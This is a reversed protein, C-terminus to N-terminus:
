NKDAGPLSTNGNKRKKEQDDLYHCTQCIHYDDCTCTLMPDIKWLEFMDQTEEFDM